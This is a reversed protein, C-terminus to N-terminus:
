QFAEMFMIAQLKDDIRYTRRASTVSKDAIPSIHKEVIETTHEELVQRPTKNTLDENKLVGLTQLEKIEETLIEDKRIGAKNTINDKREQNIKDKNM